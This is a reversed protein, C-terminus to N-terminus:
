LGSREAPPMPVALTFSGTSLMLWGDVLLASTIAERLPEIDAGEELVAGNESLCYVRYDHRTTIEQRQEDRDQRTGVKSVLVLRDKAPLLWRYDRTDTIVDAGLVTGEQSVRVIRDAFQAFIRGKSVIVDVLEASDGGFDIRPRRFADSVDGTALTIARLAGAPDEVLVRDGAIWGQTTPRVSQSRQLWRREGSALSVLEVGGDTGYVLDDIPTREAWLVGTSGAPRSRFIAEGSRQDLLVVAPAKGASGGRAAVPEDRGILVIGLDTLLAEHVEDITDTAVTVMPEGLRLDVAYVEGTRRVLLLRDNTLLPVVEALNLPMGNPMLEMNVRDRRIQDAANREQSSISSTTWRPRGDALNVAVARPDQVPARQWFIAAGDRVGLLTWSAGSSGLPCEWAATLDPAKLARLTEGRVVFLLRQGGADLWNTQGAVLVGQLAEAAGRPLGVAPADAVAAGLRDLWAQPDRSGDTVVLAEGPNNVVAHRLLRVAHDRWGMSESLEVMAGVLRARSAQAHRHPPVRHYVEEMFTLADRQLGAEILLQAGRVAAEDAASAFPFRAALERLAAVDGGGEELRQLELRAYDEQPGYVSRGHRAILRDLRDIAWMGASKSIDDHERECRALLPHDLITQYAEVADRLAPPPASPSRNGGAEGECWAGYALLQEVQQEPTLAVTRLMAHLRAGDESEGGLGLRAAELLMAFLTERGADATATQDSTAIIGRAIEAAELALDLHRVRIGLRLLSLAPELDDPHEALRQRLTREATGFPMFADLYDAGAVFLQADVALPLVDSRLPLRQQEQGTDIDAIILGQSTPVILATDTVQVRGTIDYQESTILPANGDKAPVQSRAPPLQWIPRDLSDAHFARVTEGVAFVYRDNALLYRPAGWGDVTGIPYSELMQGTDRDVLMVRREDPQIVVVGRSTLAPGSIEWPKRLLAPETIPPRHVRLWKFEGTSAEVCAVAGVTTAIIIEGRDYVPNSFPRTNRVRILASSAIHRIWAPSGDALDLAVLYTATLTQTSQKRALVYVRGEAIIPLGYAFLGDYEEEGRFGDIDAMWRKQGTRADICMIQGNSSRGDAGAHGALTVLVDDQAAIFNLDGVDDSMDQIAVALRDTAPAPWIEYGTFRDFAHVAHGENVYVANETATAAVTVIDAARRRREIAFDNAREPMGRDTYMRRMLTESLERSWIEQPVLDDIEFHVNRDVPSVGRGPPRTLSQAALRDLEALFPEGTRGLETLRERAQAATASEGLYHAALGIMFQCHAARADDILPHAEAERLRTLAARFHGAELERQGLRLLAELGSETLSRTRALAELEGDALLRDAEAQAILQYRELVGPNNRIAELVRARVPYLRDAEAPAVPILKEGYQDLLEQYLRVAEAVNDRVQDQARQFTEWALPSDDVYVPSELQSFCDAPRLCPLILCVLLLIRPRPTPAAM